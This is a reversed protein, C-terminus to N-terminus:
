MSLTFGSLWLLYAGILILPVARILMPRIATRGEEDNITVAFGLLTAAALSSTGIILMEESGNWHRISFLAAITTVSAGIGLFKPGISRGFLAAFGAPQKQEDDSKREPPAFAGLYYVVSLASLAILIIQNAAEEEVDFYKLAIGALFATVLVGEIFPAYKYLQAVFPSRGAM